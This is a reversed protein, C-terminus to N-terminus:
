HKTLLFDDLDTINMKTTSQLGEEFGGKVNTEMIIKNIINIGFENILFYIAKESQLYIDYQNDTRYENWHDYNFLEHFSVIKSNIESIYNGDSAIYEAIGESFGLPIDSDTLGVEAIKQEFVYHSYEHIINSKFNWVLPPIGEIIGEKDEPLIGFLNLNPANYGIAHGLGSYSEIEDKTNFIVVDYPKIYSTGFLSKNLEMARELSVKTAPLLHKDSDLYYISIHKYELKTRGNLLDERQKKDVKTTIFTSVSKTTYEKYKAVTGIIIFFLALLAMAIYFIKSSIINVWKENIIQLCLLFHKSKSKYAILIIWKSM